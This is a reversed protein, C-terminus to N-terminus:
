EPKSKQEPTQTGLTKNARNIFNILDEQVKENSFLALCALPDNSIRKALIKDKVFINVYEIADNVRRKASNDENDFISTIFISDELKTREACRIEVNETVETENFVGNMDPLNEVFTFDPVIFTKM